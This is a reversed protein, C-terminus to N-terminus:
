EDDRAIWPEEVGSADRRRQIAGLLDGTQTRSAGSRSAERQPAENHSNQSLTM